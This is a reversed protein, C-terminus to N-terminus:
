SNSPSIELGLLLQSRSKQREPLSSKPLLLSSIWGEEQDVLLRRQNGMDLLQSSWLSMPLLPGRRKVYELCELSGNGLLLLNTHLPWLLPYAVNHLFPVLIGHNCQANTGFLWELSAGSEEEFIRPIIDNATTPKEHEYVSELKYTLDSCSYIKTGSGCM